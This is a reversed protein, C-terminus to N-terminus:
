NEFIGHKTDNVKFCTEPDNDEFEKMFKFLEVEEKTHDARFDPENQGPRRTSNIKKVSKVPTVATILPILPPVTM